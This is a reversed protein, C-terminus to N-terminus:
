LSGLIPRLKNLTVPKHIFWNAGAFLFADCRDGASIGIVYARPFLNRMRKAVEVGNMGPMSYDIIVSDFARNESIRLAAEGDSCVTVSFGLSELDTRMIAAAQPDDDILLVNKKEKM